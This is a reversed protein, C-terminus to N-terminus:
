RRRLCSAYTVIQSFEILVVGSRKKCSV